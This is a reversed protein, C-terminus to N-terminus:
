STSVYKAVAVQLIHPPSTRKTGHTSPESNALSIKVNASNTPAAMHEAQKRPERSRQGYHGERILDRHSLGNRDHERSDGVRDTGAVNLAQRLRPAVRGSKGCEFIGERAFPQFEHLLDRRANRAERHHAIRCDRGARTLEGDQLCKSGREAEFQARYVHVVSTLDLTRDFGERLASVAAQNHSSARRSGSMALQENCQRGAVPEWVQLLASVSPSSVALMVDPALAALEAAYKRMTESTDNGWRYDLRLNQGLTWGAQQLAQAFATVREQGEADDAPFPRLVGVRRVRERQQARAAFPWAATSGAVGKILDRRRM